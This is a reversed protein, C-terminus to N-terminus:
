TFFQSKKLFDAKLIQFLKILSKFVNKLAITQEMHM